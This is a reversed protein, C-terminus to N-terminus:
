VIGALFTERPFDRRFNVKMNQLHWLLLIYCITPMDGWDSMNWRPSESKCNYGLVTIKQVKVGLFSLSDFSVTCSPIGEQKQRESETGGPDSTIAVRDKRWFLSRLLSRGETLWRPNQRLCAWWVVTFFGLYLRNLSYPKLIWDSCGFLISNLSPSRDSRTTPELSSVQVHVTVQFHNKKQCVFAEDPNSFNFGKDADM